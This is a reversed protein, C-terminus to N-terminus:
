WALTRTNFPNESHVLCWTLTKPLALHACEALNAIIGIPSLVFRLVKPNTPALRARNVLKLHNHVWCQIHRFVGLSWRSATSVGVGNDDGSDIMCSLLPLVGGDDMLSVTRLHFHVQYPICISLRPTVASYTASM